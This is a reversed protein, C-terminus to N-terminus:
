GVIALLADILGAPAVLVGDPCTAAARSRVSRAPRRHPLADPGGRRGVAPRRARLLRRLPRGGDLRPRAGRQGLRRIDRVQPLLEAVQAAQARRVAADYGFGPRSSRRRRPGRAREAVVPTATSRRRARGPRRPLVRRAGPRPDRGRPGRLRGVRVVAPHRVPLQRHRRAPRRGLAARDDGEKALGEEGLIRTAPGSACCSTASRRARGRRRRRQRSRDAHEEDAVADPTRLGRHELLVAAAARAAREAIALLTDADPHGTVRPRGGARRAAPPAAGVAARGRDARRAAAAHGRRRAARRVARRDARRARRLRRARVDGAARDRELDGYWPVRLVSANLAWLAGRDQLEGVRFPPGSPGPM